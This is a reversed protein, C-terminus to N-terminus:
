IHSEGATNIKRGQKKVYDKWLKELEVINTKEYARSQIHIAYKWDDQNFEFVNRMLSFYYSRFAFGAGFKDLQKKIVSWQLNVQLANKDSFLQATYESKYILFAQYLVLKRINNPLLHLNIGQALIKEDKTIRPQLVLVLPNRDWWELKDETKPTDYDFIVLSGPQLMRSKILKEPNNVYNEIYWQGAAKYPNAAKAVSNNNMEEWFDYSFKKALKSFGKKVTDLLRSFRSNKLFRM